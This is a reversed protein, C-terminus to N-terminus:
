YFPNIQRLPLDRKLMNKRNAIEWATLFIYQVRKTMLDIDIKDVIDGPEHYDAHVGNTFFIVPVGKRAFNIHDSRYFIMEKDNPNNYRYDLKLKTYKKNVSTSLPKLESSLVHDGVVYLYDNKSNRDTRGIMDINLNATTNHLSYVPEKTYHASGLLGQEEGSFAIFIISRSPGHGDKKAQMFIRAMELLASTGSANDDAGYFIANGETGLHDYHASLVLYEDKRDSGEIMGVINSTSLITEEFNYALIIRMSKQLEIENLPSEQQHLELLNQMDMEGFFHGIMQPIIRLVPLQPLLFAEAKMPLSAGSALLINESPNIVMVARAGKRKALDTKESISTGWKSYNTNGSVLFHGNSKPEGPFLVVIKGAVDKNKYDDYNSDSIGYGAFIIQSSRFGSERSYEIDVPLFDVGNEFAKEGIILPGPIYGKSELYFPQEYGSLKEPSILGIELFQKKIYEAAKKQGRTGTERGEMFRSALVSLHKELHASTLEDSYKLQIDQCFVPAHLFSFILFLFATKKMTLSKPRCNQILWAM